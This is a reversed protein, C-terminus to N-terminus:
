IVVSAIVAGGGKWIILILAVSPLLIKAVIALNSQDLEPVHLAPDPM